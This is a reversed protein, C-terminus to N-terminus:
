DKSLNDNLKPPIVIDNPTIVAYKYNYLKCTRIALAGDVEVVDMEADEQDELQLAYRVADDEEEFLFLVKDGYRNQVAYAGDDKRDKLTLLFM